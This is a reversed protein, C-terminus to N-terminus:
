NGSTASGTSGSDKTNCVVGSDSEDAKKQDVLATECQDQLSADAGDYTTYCEDCSMGIKADNTHCDCIYSCYDDCPNAPSSCGLLAFLILM